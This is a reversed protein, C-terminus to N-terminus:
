NPGLKPRTITDPEGYFGTLRWENKTNKNIVADIYHRDSDEVTLNVSAKWYLVLGGGRGVRPEVWRHNFGISRQVFELRADDILTKALFVVSPDKARIIDGLERETHLNGLGHCNWALCGM